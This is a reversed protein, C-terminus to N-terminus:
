MFNHVHRVNTDSTIKVPYSVLTQTFRFYPSGVIDKPQLYLVTHHPWNFGICNDCHLLLTSQVIQSSCHLARVNTFVLQKVLRELKSLLQKETGKYFRQMRDQVNAETMWQPKVTEFLTARSTLQQMGGRGRTGCPRLLRPAMKLLRPAMKFAINAGAGVNRM